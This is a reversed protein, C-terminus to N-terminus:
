VDAESGSEQTGLGWAAQRSMSDAAGTLRKTGKWMRYVAVAILLVVVVVVIVIVAIQEKTLNMRKGMYTTPSGSGTDVGVGATLKAGRNWGEGLVTPALSVTLPQGRAALEVALTPFLQEKTRPLGTDPDYCVNRTYYRSAPTVCDFIVSAASSSVKAVDQLDLLTRTAELNDVTAQSAAQYVLNGQAGLYPLLFLEPLTLLQDGSGLSPVRAAQSSGVNARIQALQADTLKTDLLASM